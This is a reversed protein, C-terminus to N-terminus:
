NITDNLKETMDLCTLTDASDNDIGANHKFLSAFEKLVLRGQVMKSLSFKSVALQSSLIKHKSDKM